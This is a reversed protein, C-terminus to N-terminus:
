QGPIWPRPVADLLFEQRSADVRNDDSDYVDIRLISSTFIMGTVPLIFSSVTIIGKNVLSPYLCICDRQYELFDHVTELTFAPTSYIEINRRGIANLPSTAPNYFDQATFDPNLINDNRVSSFLGMGVKYDLKDDPVDTNMEISLVSLPQGPEIDMSWGIMKAQRAFIYM